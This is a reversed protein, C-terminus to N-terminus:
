ERELHAQFEARQQGKLHDEYTRLDRLLEEASDRDCGQPTDTLCPYVKRLLDRFPAPFQPDYVQKSTPHNADRNM